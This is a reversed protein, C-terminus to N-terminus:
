LTELRELFATLQEREIRFPVYLPWVSHSELHKGPLVLLRHGLARFLEHHLQVEEHPPGGGPSPYLLGIRLGPRAFVLGYVAAGGIAVVTGANRILRMQGAFPLDAPDVVAWGSEEFWQEVERRNALRDDKRTLLVRLDRQDADFARLAPEVRQLLAALASTDALQEIPTGPLECGPWYIVSSVIWLRRVKVSAGPPLVVVPHEAGCFHRLMEVHAPQMQEDVIIPVNRFGPRDLCALVKFLKEVIWHAYNYTYMGVLSLAEELSPQRGSEDHELLTLSTGDAGLVAPDLDFWVPYRELEDGQYDMLIGEDVVLLNSKSSVVVDPIVSFFISRTTGQIPPGSEEGIFEPESMELLRPAVIEEYPLDNTLVYDQLSTLTRRSAHWPDCQGLFQGLLAATTPEGFSEVLTRKIRHFAFFYKGPVMFVRPVIAPSFRPIQDIPLANLFEDLSGPVVQDLLSHCHYATIFQGHRQFYRGSHRLLVPSPVGLGFAEMFHTRAVDDAGEADALIGRAVSEVSLELPDGMAGIQELERLAGSADSAELCAIAHRVSRQRAADLPPRRSREGPPYPGQHREWRSMFDPPPLLLEAALARKDERSSM